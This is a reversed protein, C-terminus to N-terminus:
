AETPDITWRSGHPQQTVCLKVKPKVILQRCFAVSSLELFLAMWAHKSEQLLTCYKRCIDRFDFMFFDEQGFGCPRSGQSKTHLIM